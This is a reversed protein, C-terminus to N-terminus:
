YTNDNRFGIDIIVNRFGEKKFIIRISGIRVRYEDTKGQLKKVDLMSESGEVISRIAFMARERKARSLKLLFKSVKDM